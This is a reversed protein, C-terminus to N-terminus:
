GGIWFFCPHASTPVIIDVSLMMLLLVVIVVEFTKIGHEGVMMTTKHDLTHSIAYRYRNMTSGCYNGQLYQTVVLPHWIFGRHELKHCTTFIVRILMACWKLVVSFCINRKEERRWRNHQKPEKHAGVSEDDGIKIRRLRYWHDEGARESETNIKPLTWNRKVRQANLVQENRWKVYVLESTDTRLIVSVYVTKDKKEEKKM